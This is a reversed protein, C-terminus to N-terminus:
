AARRTRRSESLQRARGQVKLMYARRRQEQYEADGANEAHHVAYRRAAGPGMHQTTVFLNYDASVGTLQPDLPYVTPQDYIEELIVDQHNGLADEVTAYTTTGDACSFSRSRQTEIVRPKRARAGM